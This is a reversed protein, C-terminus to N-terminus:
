RELTVVTATAQGPLVRIPTSARNAAFAARATFAHLTYDDLDVDALLVRGDRDTEGQYDRDDVGRWLSVFAFAAPTGDARLVRCAVSGFPGFQALLEERRVAGDVPGLTCPPHGAASVVVEYRCGPPLPGSEFGGDVSRHFQDLVTGGAADRGRIRVEFQGVAQGTAAVRARVALVLGPADVMDADELVIRIDDAPAEVLPGRVYRHETTRATIRIPLGAPVQWRFTGDAGCPGRELSTSLGMRARRIPDEGVEFSPWLFVNPRPRGDGDVVRGALTALPPLQLSVVAHPQASDLLVQTWAASHGTAGGVLWFSGGETRLEAFTGDDRAKIRQWRPGQPPASTAVLRLDGAIGNGSADLLRGRVSFAGPFQMAVEHERATSGTELYARCYRDGSRAMLRLDLQPLADFAFNGADDARVPPWDSALDGYLSTTHHRRIEVGAAPSGYALRITGRVRVIPLLVLRWDEVLFRPHGSVRVDGSM